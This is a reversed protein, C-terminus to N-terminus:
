DITVASRNQTTPTAPDLARMKKNEPKEFGLSGSSVASLEDHFLSVVRSPSLARDTLTLTSDRQLNETTIFKRPKVIRIFEIM